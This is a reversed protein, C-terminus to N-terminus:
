SKTLNSSKSGRSFMEPGGGGGKKRLNVQDNNVETEQDQVASQLERNLM